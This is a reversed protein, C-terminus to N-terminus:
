NMKAIVIRAAEGTSRTASSRMDLQLSEIQLKSQLATSQSKFFANMDAAHTATKSSAAPSLQQEWEAALVHVRRGAQRLWAEHKLLEERTEGKANVPLPQNALLRLQDATQRLRAIQMQAALVSDGVNESKRSAASKAPKSTEALLPLSLIFSLAVISSWALVRGLAM